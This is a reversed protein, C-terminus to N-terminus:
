AITAEARHYESFELNMTTTSVMTGCIVAYDGTTLDAVPAMAGSASLVVVQGITSTFGPTFGLDAEVYDCPQGDESANLAIGVAAFKDANTCDALKIKNSDASDRYVVDGAALSEGSIGARTKATSTQQVNAPTITFDAM